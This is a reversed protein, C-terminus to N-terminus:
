ILKMALTFASKLASGWRKLLLAIGLNMARIFRPHYKNSHTAIPSPPSKSLHSAHATRTRNKEGGYKIVVYRTSDWLNFIGRVTTRPNHTKHNPNINKFPFTRFGIAISASDDINRLAAIFM